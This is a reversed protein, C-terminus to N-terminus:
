RVSPVPTVLPVGKDVVYNAVISAPGPGLSLAEHPTDRPVSFSDGAHLVRAPQGAILLKLTGQQIYTIEVGPHKHPGTTSGAPMIRQILVDEQPLTPAPLPTHMQHAPPPLTQPNAFFLAAAILLFRSALSHM